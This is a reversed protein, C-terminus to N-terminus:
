AAVKKITTKAVRRWEGAGYNARPVFAFFKGNMEKAEFENSRIKAILKSMKNQETEKTPTVM